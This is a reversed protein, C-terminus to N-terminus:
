SSTWRFNEKVHLEIQIQYRWWFSLTTPCSRILNISLWDQHQHRVPHHHHMLPGICRKAAVRLRSSIEQVGLWPSQFKGAWLVQSTTVSPRPPRQPDLHPTLSSGPRTVTWSMAFCRNLISHILLSAFGELAPSLSHFHTGGEENPHFPVCHCFM